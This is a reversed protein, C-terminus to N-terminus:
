STFETLAVLFILWAGFWAAVLWYVGGWTRPWPLGPGGAAPKSGAEEAVASAQTARM